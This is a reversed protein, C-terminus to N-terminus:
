RAGGAFGAGIRPRQGVRFPEALQGLLDELRLPRDDVGVMMQPFVRAAAVKEILQQGVDIGHVVDDGGAEDLAARAVAGATRFRSRACLRVKSAQIYWGCILPRVSTARSQGSTLITSFWKPPGSPTPGYLRSSTKGPQRASM